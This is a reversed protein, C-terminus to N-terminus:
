DVVAHEIDEPKFKWRRHSWLWYQPEERIVKELYQVHAKTIEHPATKTADDVLSVATYTYYGRKVRRVECFYVLCDFSKAMKELGLFVATPQNLFTTFYTSEHRVPTQDGLLVTIFPENKLEVMKRLVMKMAVPIGRFRSRTKIFFRDFVTNSLPKYVIMFKKDTIATIELALLEWNGYHGAVAVIKKDINLLKKVLEPNTARIRKSLEKPSISISKITEVILDAFYRFFKREIDHREQITKEPFANQLNQQVVKRRYGVLYYVIVFLIDSIIYLFWFPLLSLLYLFFIGIHSLGKKIM